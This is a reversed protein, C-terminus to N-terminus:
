APHNIYYNGIKVIAFTSAEKLNKIGDANIGFNEKAIKKALADDSVSGYKALQEKNELFKYVLYLAKLEDNTLKQYAESKPGGGAAYKKDKGEQAIIYAVAQQRGAKNMTNLNSKEASSDIAASSAGSSISPMTGKKNYIFWPITASLGLMIAWFIAKGMSEKLIYRGFVFYGGAVLLPAVKAWLPSKDVQEM